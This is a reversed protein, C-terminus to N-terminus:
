KISVSFRAKQCHDRNSPQRLKSALMHGLRRVRRNSSIVAAMFGTLFIAAGAILSYYLPKASLTMFAVFGQFLTRDLSLPFLSEEINFGELFGQHYTLGLLYLGATVIPLVTLVTQLMYLNRICLKSCAPCLMNVPPSNKWFDAGHFIGYAMSYIM